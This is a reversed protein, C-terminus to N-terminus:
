IRRFKQNYSITLTFTSYLTFLVYCLTLYDNVFFVTISQLTKYQAETEIWERHVTLYSYCKKMWINALTKTRFDQQIAMSNAGSTRLTEIVVPTSNSILSVRSRSLANLGLQHSYKM